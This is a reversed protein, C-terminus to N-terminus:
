KVFRTRQWCSYHFLIGEMNFQTKEKWDNIKEGQHSRIYFIQRKFFITCLLM